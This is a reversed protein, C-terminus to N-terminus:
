AILRRYEPSAAFKRLEEIRHVVMPHTAFTSAAVNVWSDDEAEIKALVNKMEGASRAGGAALKVLASVAKEPNRCAILGARDASYECARNWWRFAAVLIVAMGLTTPVGAMGGLLSNLWTHGLAVHGMEHGIIFRLEDGDMVKLLPSFLVISFPQEIGFTYANLARQRTVFVQVRGPRLRAVCDQVLGALQPANEPTVATSEAILAQTHAKNSLYAMLVVLGLFAPLVCVTFGAAFLLVAGVVLVTVLLIPIESPYRYTDM